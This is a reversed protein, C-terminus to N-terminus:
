RVHLRVPERYGCRCYSLGAVFTWVAAVGSKRGLVPMVAPIGPASFCFTLATKDAPRRIQSFEPQRLGQHPYRIVEAVAGRHSSGEPAFYRAM